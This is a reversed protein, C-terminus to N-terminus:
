NEPTRKSEFCSLLLFTYIDDISPLFVLHRVILVLANMWCVVVNSQAVTLSVSLHSMVFVPFRTEGSFM